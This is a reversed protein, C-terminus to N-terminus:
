RAICTQCSKHRVRKVFRPFDRPDTSLIGGHLQDSTFFAFRIHMRVLSRQRSAHMRTRVTSKRSYYNHFCFVDFIINLIAPFM